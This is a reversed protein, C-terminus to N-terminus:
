TLVPIGLFTLDGSYQLLVPLLQRVCATWVHRCTDM